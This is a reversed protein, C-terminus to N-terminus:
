RGWVRVTDAFTFAIRAVAPCVVDRQFDPVCRPLVGADVHDLAGVALADTLGRDAQVNQTLLLVCQVCQSPRSTFLTKIEPQGSGMHAGNKGGWKGWTYTANRIYQRKM